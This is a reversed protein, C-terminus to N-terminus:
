PLVEGEDWEDGLEEYVTLATTAVQISPAQTLSIADPPLPRQLSLRTLAELHAPHTMCAGPIPAREHEAVILDGCRIVIREHGRVGVGTVIVPQGIYQPPVSYRSRQLRVYGEADVRRECHESLQYPPVAGLPTLAPQEDRWLDMPRAHTTAHVRVNATQALWTHGQANLDDLGTFTRGQLFSDRVYAVVREVKGKTRPRRIRHTKPVIGYHSCFDLFLPTWTHPAARVQKMNDYLITQPIGAFFTFAHQHCHLLTPLRMDTTFELYLQRSFGLVMVFCYISQVEVGTTGTTAGKGIYAWDVQAQHGPPTEFRVTMKSRRQRETRIQRLYRRLVDVSGDYGQPRLEELLRVASLRCEAERSVLYPKFPDLCSARARKPPHPPTAQRLVRRVTNRATGTLTAISRISHGQRHLDKIDM